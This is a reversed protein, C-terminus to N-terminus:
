WQMLARIKGWLQTVWLDAGLQSMYQIEPTLMNRCLQKHKPSINNKLNYGQITKEGIPQWPQLGSELIKSSDVAGGGAICENKLEENRRRLELVDQHMRKSGYEEVKRWFTSNFHQYILTDVANWKHALQYMEPSLRSVGSDKRANLKFYLIDDMEWCMLERLLLLSEDFYELLMVLHFRGDLEDLVQKVNLDEVDNDYGLDYAQLNHLYQANFGSSDYYTHPSQLFEEMKQVNSSGPLKWTLPIVRAFYQFSSEFLLAPDRLVTVFTADLPLLARVESHQYRMHNCIVNFCAGPQYGEVQWRQFYDPYDFDNRGRPFAFHLNNKQGYRFLINLITSSGTKHTKLFFLNHQQQCQSTGKASFNTLRRSAIPPSSAFCQFAVPNDTSSLNLPPAAYSYLLILFSTLLTGLALGKWISRWLKGQSQVCNM